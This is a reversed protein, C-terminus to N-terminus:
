SIGMQKPYILSLVFTVRKQGIRRGYVSYKVKFPSIVSTTISFNSIKPLFGSIHPSIGRPATSGAFPRM